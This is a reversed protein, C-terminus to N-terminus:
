SVEWTKPVVGSVQAAVIGAITDRLQREPEPTGQWERLLVEGAQMAALNPESLGELTHRLLRVIDAFASHIHDTRSDGGYLGDRGMCAVTLANRLAGAVTEQSHLPTVPTM